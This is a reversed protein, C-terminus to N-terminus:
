VLQCDKLIVNKSFGDYLGRVAVQRGEDLRILQPVASKDFVCRVSWSGKKAIGELIIYRVDIHDRVFVKAVQGRVVIAKGQLANGTSRSDGSFLENLQDVTLETGNRISELPPAPVNAPRAPEATVSPAPEAQPEESIAPAPEPEPAPTPAPPPTIMPGSKPEVVPASEPAPGPELEPPQEPEPPPPPTIMPEPEPAPEPQPTPPVQVVPEPEPARSTEVTPIEEQVDQEADYDSEPESVASKWKAAQEEQLERYTKDLAKYAKSLLPYGCWRCVWDKTRM